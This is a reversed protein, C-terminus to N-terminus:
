STTTLERYAQPAKLTFSCTAPDGSTTDLEPPLISMIPAAVADGNGDALTFIYNGVVTDIGGRPSFRFYIRKDDSQWAEYVMDFAENNVETYVINVTVEVPEWKNGATVIPAGVGGATNVHGTLQEQGSFSIGIAVGDISTWAVGDSSVQAEWDGQGIAGITQAM